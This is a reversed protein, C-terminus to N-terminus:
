LRIPTDDIGFEWGGGVYIVGHYQTIISGMVGDVGTVRISPDELNSKM